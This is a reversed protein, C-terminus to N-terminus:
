SCQSCRGQIWYNFRMAQYGEPLEPQLSSGLCRVRGCNECEFHVHDHIHTEKRCNICPAYYWKGNEGTIRHLEGDECLRQLMRYLTIRDAPLTLRKQVEEQSLASGAQKLLEMVAQRVPTNRRKM